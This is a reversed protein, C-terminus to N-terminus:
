NNKKQALHETIIMLLASKDSPTTIFYNCGAAEAMSDDGMLPYATMAIVITQQFRPDSRIKRTLNFGDTDPLQIDILILAPQFEELVDLTENADMATRVDYGEVTLLVKLLKINTENGDVILIRESSM